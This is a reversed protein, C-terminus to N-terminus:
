GAQGKCVCNPPTISLLYSQSGPTRFRSEAISCNPQSAKILNSKREQLGARLYLILPPTPHLFVDESNGTLCEVASAM